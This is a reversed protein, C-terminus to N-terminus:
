KKVPPAVKFYQGFVTVWRHPDDEGQFYEQMNTASPLSHLGDMYNVATGQSFKPLKHLEEFAAAKEQATKLELILTHYRALADADVYYRGALDALQNIRTRDLAAKGDEEIVPLTPRQYYAALASVATGLAQEIGYYKAVIEKKDNGDALYGGIKEIEAHALQNLYLKVAMPTHHEDIWTKSTPLDHASFEAVATDYSDAMKTLKQLTAFYLNDNRQESDIYFEKEMISTNFTKVQTFHAKETAARRGTSSNTM